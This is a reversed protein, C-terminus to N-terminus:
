SSTRRSCIQSVQSQWTCIPRAHIAHSTVHVCQAHAARQPQPLPFPMGTPSATTLYYDLSGDDLQVSTLGLLVIAEQRSGRIRDLLRLQVPQGATDFIISKGMSPRAITWQISHPLREFLQQTSTLLVMTRNRALGGMGNMMTQVTPAMPMGGNLLQSHEKLRTILRSPSSMLRSETQRQIAILYPHARAADGRTPQKGAGFPTAMAGDYPFATLSLVEQCTRLLM